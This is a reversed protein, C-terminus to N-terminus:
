LMTQKSGPHPLQTMRRRGVSPKLTALSEVIGASPKSTRGPQHLSTSAGRKAPIGKATEVKKSGPILSNHVEDVEEEAMGGRRIIIIQMKNEKGYWGRGICFIRMYDFGFM